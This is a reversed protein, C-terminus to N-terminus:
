RGLGVLFEAADYVTSLRWTAAAVALSVFATASLGGFPRGAPRGPELLRRVRSELSDGGIFASMAVPPAPAVGVALRAVTTLASALTLGDGAARADLDAAEEATSAWADEVLAAATGAAPALVFLVRTLNDRAAVHAQEHAAIAALEAASCARLVDASVYLQPRRVGVVAVVPFATDVVWARGRWGPVAEAIGNMRWARAVQRTAALARTARGVAMAIIGAGAAAMLPLAVGPTEQHGAPEFRWFALQVLPLALLSLTLPALRAQALVSARSRAGIVAFWPQGVLRVAVAVVAGGCVVAVTVSTLALLAALALPTM